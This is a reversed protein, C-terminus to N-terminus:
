GGFSFQFFSSHFEKFVGVADGDHLLIFQTLLLTVEVLPTHSEFGGVQLMSGEHRSDKNDPREVSTTRSGCM